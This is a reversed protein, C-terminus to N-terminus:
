EDSHQVAVEISPCVVESEPVWSHCESLDVPVDSVAERTMQPSAALPGESQRSPHTEILEEILESQHVQSVEVACSGAFAQPSLSRSLRIRSIRMDPEVLPSHTTDRPTGSM